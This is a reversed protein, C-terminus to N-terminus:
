KAATLANLPCNASTPAFVPDAGNLATMIKGNITTSGTGSLSGNTQVVLNIPTSGNSISVVSGSQQLSITYQTLIHAQACDLIVNSDSFQIRLGNASTFVGIMRPGPPVSLQPKSNTQGSVAGIATGIASIVSTGPSGTSLGPDMVVNPGPALAGISCHVTIPGYTPISQDVVGTVKNVWQTYGTIQQGSIDLAAPGSAKGDSSIAIAFPQPQSAINVVYKGNSASVTYTFSSKAMKGCTIGVDRDSFNFALGGPGTFTGIIDLGAKGTAGLPNGGVSSSMGAGVCQLGSGGLEFCRRIAIQAPDNTPPLPRGAGSMNGGPQATTAVASAQWLRQVTPMRFTTFLSAIFQSNGVYPGQPNYTTKELTQFGSHYNNVIKVEDPTLQNQAVRPGALTGIMQSLQQFASLQRYAADTPNAGKIQALIQDVTPFENLYAPNFTQQSNASPQPQATTSPKASTATCGQLRGTM